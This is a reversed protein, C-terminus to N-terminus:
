KANKIMLDIHEDVLKTRIMDNVNLHPWEIEFPCNNKWRSNQLFFKYEGIDEKNTPDFFRRNWTLHSLRFKVNTPNVLTKM